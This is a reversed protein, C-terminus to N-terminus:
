KRREQIYDSIQHYLLEFDPLWKFFYHWVRLNSIYEDFKWEVVDLESDNIERELEEVTRITNVEREVGTKKDRLIITQKSAYHKM